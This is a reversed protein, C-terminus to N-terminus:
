NEEHKPDEQTAVADPVEPLAASEGDEVEPIGALSTLLSLLTAAGVIGLLAKWDVGWLTNVALSALATQAATKVARTLAANWWAGSKFCTIGKM